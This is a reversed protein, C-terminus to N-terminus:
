PIYTPRYYIAKVYITRNPIDGDHNYDDYCDNHYDDNDDGHISGVFHDVFAAVTEADVSPLDDTTAAPDIYRNPAGRRAAGRRM